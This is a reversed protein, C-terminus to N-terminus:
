FFVYMDLSHIKNWALKIYMSTFICSVTKVLCNATQKYEATQLYCFEFQLEQLIGIRFAVSLFNQNFLKLLGKRRDSNKDNWIFGFRVGFLCRNPIFGTPSTTLPVLNMFSVFTPPLLLAASCLPKVLTKM